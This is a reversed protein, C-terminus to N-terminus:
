RKPLCAAVRRPNEAPMDCSERRRAQLGAIVGGGPQRPHRRGARLGTVLDRGPGPPCLGPRTDRRLDQDAISVDSRRRNAPEKSCPGAVQELNHTSVGILANGGVIRRADALAMDEQGLHVGDAEALRAIDPRDNVIFLM